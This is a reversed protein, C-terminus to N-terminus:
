ENVEKIDTHLAKTLDDAAKKIKDEISDVKNNLLDWLSDHDHSSLHKLFLKKDEEGLESLIVDLITNHLSSDILSVLHWKEEESLNLKDLEIYLSDTEIIHSYFHKSQVPRGQTKISKKM